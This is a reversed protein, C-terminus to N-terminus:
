KKVEIYHKIIDKANTFSETRTNPYSGGQYGTIVDRGTGVEEGWYPSSGYPSSLGMKVLASDIVSNTQQYAGASQMSTLPDSGNRIIAQGFTQNGASRIPIIMGDSQRIIGDMPNGTYGLKILSTKLDLDHNHRFDLAMGAETYNDAVAQSLGEINITKDFHIRADAYRPDDYGKFSTPTEPAGVWIYKGTGDQKDIYVGTDDDETVRLVKGNKDIYTANNAAANTAIRSGEWANKAMEDDSQGTLGGYTVTSISGIVNALQISTNRNTGNQYALDGVVEGVVGAVAGSGCNGGTAAGVACGLGAHASPM